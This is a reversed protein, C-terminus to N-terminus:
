HHTAAYQIGAQVQAIAQNVHDIAKERHGGKDPSAEQLHTRATNLASLAAEMHGQAALAAGTITSGVIAGSLFLAPLGSRRLINTM